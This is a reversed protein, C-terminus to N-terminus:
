FKIALRILRIDLRNFSMQNNKDGRITITDGDYAVLTGEAKQEYTEVHVYKGIAKEIETDDRLTREAGPSSVELSYPGPFPDLGDLFDSLKGSVHVCDDITIGDPKDIMVTLVFQQREKHYVLDYLEYGSRGLEDSIQQRIHSLDM